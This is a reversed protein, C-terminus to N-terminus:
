DELKLQQLVHKHAADLRAQIARLTDKDAQPLIDQVALLSLEHLRAVAALVQPASLLTPSPQSSPAPGSELLQIVAYRPILKQQGTKVHSAILPTVKVYTEGQYHFQQGIKVHQFKM